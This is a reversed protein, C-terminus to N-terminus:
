LVQEPETGINGDTSFEIIQLINEQAPDSAIKDINVVAFQLERIRERHSNNSDGDNAM